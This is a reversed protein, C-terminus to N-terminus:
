DLSRCSNGRWRWSLLCLGSDGPLRPPLSGADFLGGAKDTPCTNSWMLRPPFIGGSYIADKELYPIRSQLHPYVSQTGAFMGQERCRSQPHRWQWWNDWAGTSHGPITLQYLGVREQTAKRLSMEYITIVTGPLPILIAGWLLLQLSSTHKPSHNSFAGTWCWPSAIGCSAGHFLFGRTTGRM